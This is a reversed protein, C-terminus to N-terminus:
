SVSEGNCGLKAAFYEDKLEDDTKVADEPPLKLVGILERVKPHIKALWDADASTAGTARQSVARKRAMNKDHLGTMHVCDIGYTLKLADAFLDAISRHEREAYTNAADIMEQPLEITATPM